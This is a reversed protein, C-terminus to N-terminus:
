EIILGEKHPSIELHPTSAVGVTQLSLRQKSEMGMLLKGVVFGM